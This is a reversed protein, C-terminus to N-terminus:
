YIVNKEDISIGTVTETKTVKRDNQYFARVM